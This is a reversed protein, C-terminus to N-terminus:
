DKLKEETKLSQKLLFTVIEIIDAFIDVGPRRLIFTNQFLSSPRM